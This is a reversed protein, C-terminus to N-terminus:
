SCNIKVIPSNQKYIGFYLKQPLFLNNSSMAHIVAPAERLSTEKFFVVFLFILQVFAAVDAM